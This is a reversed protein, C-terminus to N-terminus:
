FPVHDIEDELGTTEELVVPSGDTQGEQPSAPQIEANDQGKRRHRYIQNTRQTALKLNGPSNNDRKRDDHDVILDAQLNGKYKQYVVRHAQLYVGKYRIQIYGEGSYKGAKRWTEQTGRGNLPICTWITGDERVDYRTDLLFERILHDHKARLQGSRGM